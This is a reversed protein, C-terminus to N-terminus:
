DWLKPELSNQSELRVVVHAVELSCHVLRVTHESGVPWYSTKSPGVLQKTSLRHAEIRGSRAFRLLFQIWPKNQNRSAMFPKTRYISRTSFLVRLKDIIYASNTARGSNYEYMNWKICNDHLSQKKERIHDM